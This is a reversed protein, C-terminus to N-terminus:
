YRGDVGLDALHVREKLDGGGFVQICSEEGLVHWMGLGENKKIEDGLYYKSFLVVVFITM